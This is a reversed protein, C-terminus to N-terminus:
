GAGVACGPATRCAGRGSPFRPSTSHRQKLNPSNRLSEPPQESQVAHIEAQFLSHNGREDSRVARTFGREKVDERANIPRIAPLNTEPIAREDSQARAEAGLSRRRSSGVAPIFADSACDSM